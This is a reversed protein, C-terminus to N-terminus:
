LTTTPEMIRLLPHGDINELPIYVFILIPTVVYQILMPSQPTVKM